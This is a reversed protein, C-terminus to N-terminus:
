QIPLIISLEDRFTAAKIEKLIWKKNRPIAELKNRSV